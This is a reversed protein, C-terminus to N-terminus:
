SGTGSSGSSDVRRRVVLPRVSDGPDGPTEGDEAAPVSGRFCSGYGDRRSMFGTPQHARRALPCSPGDIDRQRASLIVSSPMRSIYVGYYRFGKQLM